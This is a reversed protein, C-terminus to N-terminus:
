SSHQDLRHPSRINSRQHLPLGCPHPGGAAGAGEEVAGGGRRPAVGARHGRGDSVAPRLFPGRM